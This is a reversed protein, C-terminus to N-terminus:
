PKVNKIIEVIEIIMCILLFVSLILLFISMISSIEEVWISRKFDKICENESVSFTIKDGVDHTCYTTYDVYLSYYKFKNTDDPKVCMIYRTSMNRHYKGHAYQETNKSFVTGPVDYNKYTSSQICFVCATISVIFICIFSFLTKHKMKQM